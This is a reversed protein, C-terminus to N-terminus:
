RQEATGAPCDQTSLHHNQHLLTNHVDVYRGDSQSANHAYRCVRAAEGISNHASFELRGSWVAATHASHDHDRVPALCVFAVARPSGPTTAPLATQACATAASDTLALRTAALSVDAGLLVTGSILRAAVALCSSLDAESGPMGICRYAVDGTRADFVLWPGGEGPLSVQQRFWRSSGALPTAHLPVSVPRGEAGLQAQAPSLPSMLLSSRLADGPAILTRLQVLQDRGARDPWQLQVVVAKAGAVDDVEWRRAYAAAGGDVRDQGSAITAFGSGATPTRREAGARWREVLEQALTIAQAQERAHASHRSLHAQMHALALIGVTLILLAVLAEVLAFGRQVQDTTRRNM